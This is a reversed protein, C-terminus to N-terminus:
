PVDSAQNCADSRHKEASQHTHQTCTIGTRPGAVGVTDVAARQDLTHRMPRELRPADHAFAELGKSAAAAGGHGNASRQKGRSDRRAAHYPTEHASFGCLQRLFDRVWVCFFYLARAACWPMLSVYVCAFCVWRGCSVTRAHAETKGTAAIVILLGELTWRYPPPVIVWCGARYM